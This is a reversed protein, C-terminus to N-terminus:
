NKIYESKIMSFLVIDVVGKGKWVHGQRITGEEVFNNRRLVNLSKTNEPMVCAQIRNIGIDNFLYEIIAKVTKTATGKGWFRENIRYGITIMNVERDYDFIQAVGVINDPDSNMSIGLYIMKKKNYDREFHGVMNAVTDKNKKLLVPSHIFLNENSYIEFLSDIDSPVIKRLTIEDTIINPFQDYPSKSM